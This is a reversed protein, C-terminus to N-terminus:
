GIFATETQQSGYAVMRVLRSLLLENPYRKLRIIWSLDYLAYDMSDNKYTHLDVRYLGATTGDVFGTM